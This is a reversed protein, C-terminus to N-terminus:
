LTQIESQFLRKKFSTTVYTLNKISHGGSYIMINHCATLDQSANLTDSLEDCWSIGGGDSSYFFLWLFIRSVRSTQM